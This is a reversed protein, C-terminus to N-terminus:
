RPSWRPSGGDAKRQLVDHVLKYVRVRLQGPSIAIDDPFRRMITTEIWTDRAEAAAEATTLAMTSPPAAAVTRLRASAADWLEEAYTHLHPPPWSDGYRDANIGIVNLVDEASSYGAMKVGWDAPMRWTNLRTLLDAVVKDLDKARNRRIRPALM